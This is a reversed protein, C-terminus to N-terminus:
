RQLERQRARALALDAQPTKQTKKMFGHLLVITSEEICFIVRYQNQDVKTRVEYLGQGFSDVLPKRNSQPWEEQVSRIDSGIEMRVTKDLGRLWERVPENRQVTRFFILRLGAM